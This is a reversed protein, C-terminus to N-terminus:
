RLISTLYRYLICAIEARTAADQPRFEDGPIDRFVGQMTLANVPSKAWDSIKDWDPYERDMLIDVPALGTSQQIRYIIAAAQEKTVQDDPGFKGNGYGLVVGNDVAWKVANSYWTDDEVDEFSNSLESVDPEGADRYLITVIMARTLAGEPGFMDDSTGLMLGNTYVYAVAENYWSKESVDSFPHEAIDTTDIVDIIPVAETENITGIGGAYVAAPLAAQWSIAFSIVLAICIIRNKLKNTKM